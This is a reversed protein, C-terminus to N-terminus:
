ATEEYPRIRDDYFTDELYHVAKDLLDPRDRFNGLGVNCTFCLVGRIEGTEHDHDVHEAPRERCIACMGGYEAAMAAVQEHTVGYRAKLHKNRTSGHNKVANERSVKNHCDLCYSSIGRSNSRNIAFGELPFTHQCRPCTKWPTVSQVTRRPRRRQIREGRARRAKSAANRATM